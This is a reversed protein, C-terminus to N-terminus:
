KTEKPEPPPLCARAKEYEAQDLQFIAGDKGDVSTKEYTSAQGESVRVITRGKSVLDQKTSGDPARYAFVIQPATIGGFTTMVFLPMCRTESLNAIMPRNVPQLPREEAAATALIGLFVFLARKM